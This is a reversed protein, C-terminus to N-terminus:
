APFEIFLLQQFIVHLMLRQFILIACPMMHQEDLKILFWVLNLDKSMEYQAPSWEKQQKNQNRMRDMIDGLSLDPFAFFIKSGWFRM